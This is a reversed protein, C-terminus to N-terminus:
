DNLQEPARGESWLKLWKNVDASEDRRFRIQRRTRETHIAETMVGSGSHYSRPPPLRIARHGIGEHIIDGAIAIRNALKRGPNHALNV